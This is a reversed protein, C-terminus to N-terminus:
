RQNEKKWEKKEADFKRASPGERRSEEKIECNRDGELEKERKSERENERKEM